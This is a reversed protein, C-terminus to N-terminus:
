ENRDGEEYVPIVLLVQEDTLLKNDIMEKMEEVSCLRIIYDDAELFRGIGHLKKSLPLAFSYKTLRYLKVRLHSFSKM